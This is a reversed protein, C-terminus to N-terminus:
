EREKKTLGLSVNEGFEFQNRKNTRACVNADTFDPTPYFHSVSNSMEISREMLYGRRVMGKSKGHGM